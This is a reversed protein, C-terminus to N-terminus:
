GIVVPPDELHEFSKNLYDKIDEVAPIKWAGGDAEFLVCYTRNGDDKLRFVFRSEPQPIDIFTRYPFLTVPNPVTTDQLGSAGMNITVKQSVGDDGYEATTGAKVRSIFELLLTRDESDTFQSQLAIQFREREVFHDLEIRPLIAEATLLKERKADSDLSSMLSVKTPSEVVILMNISKDQMWQRTNKLM